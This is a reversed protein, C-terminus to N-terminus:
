ARSRDQDVENTASLIAKSCPKRGTNQTEEGLMMESSPVSEISVYKRKKPANASNRFAVRLKRKDTRGDTHFLEAGVLRIKM